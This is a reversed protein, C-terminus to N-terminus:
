IIKLTPLPFIFRTGKKRIKRERILIEKKFHWPLVLYFDPKLARSYKESIIRIKSGPTYLNFKHKNREAIYKVLDTGIGFYQLLVNGKTSAGYGHVSKGKNKAEILLHDLKEIPKMLQVGDGEEALGSDVKLIPIINKEKWLYEAAPRNQIENNMTHAFLIAAIIDKGDFADSTIIRTRMQHVLAFMESDNSWKDEEIGYLALAKPTSGGSQDLAAVFGLASSMREM